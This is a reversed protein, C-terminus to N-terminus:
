SPIMLPNFSLPCPCIFKSGLLYPLHTILLDPASTTVPGTLSEISKGLVILGFTVGTVMFGLIAFIGAMTYRLFYSFFSIHRPLHTRHAWEGIAGLPCMTCWVRGLLPFTFVMGVWWINWTLFTAGNVFGADPQQIYGGYGYLGFIIVLLFFIMNPGTLLIMFWRRKILWNGLRNNTLSLRSHVEFRNKHINKHDSYWIMYLLVTGGIIIPLILVVFFGRIGFLVDIENFIDIQRALGLFALYTVFLILIGISLTAASKNLIKQLWFTDDIQAPGRKASATAM